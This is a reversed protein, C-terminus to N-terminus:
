VNYGITFDVNLNKAEAVGGAALALTVALFFAILLNIKRPM